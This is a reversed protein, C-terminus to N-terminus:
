TDIINILKQEIDSKSKTGILQDVLEGSKFFLITPLYYIGYYEKTQPNLDTDLRCFKVENKYVSALENLSSAIIHCPGCWPAGFEVMVAQSSALVEKQFSDDTLQLFLNDEKVM